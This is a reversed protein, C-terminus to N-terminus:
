WGNRFEGTPVELDTTQKYKTATDKGDVLAVAVCLAVVVVIIWDLYKM